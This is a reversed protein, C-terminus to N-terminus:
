DKNQGKHIFIINRYFHISLINQDFYSPQYGALKYEQYNIGDTLKKFFHMMTKPNNLDSNDGGYDAWYSTQTDEIVYIGGNKLVPFLINFTEIVHENIHSGDDIILDLQGIKSVVDMLFAKDVQSGKFIKIRKEQLFLKDVIDLSFVKGYPFYKKWMRLSRGGSYPNDYGGVGIELINIKQYKFDKFHTGYHPTYYHRGWKDTGYIQALKDLNNGHGIARVDQIFNRITKRLKVPLKQQLYKEINM